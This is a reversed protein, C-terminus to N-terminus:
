KQVYWVVGNVTLQLSKQACFEDVARVVGPWHGIYDDGFMYGGEKLLPWYKNLDTIVADYEHSADIYIIDAKANYYTLVDAGQVSSIPFPLITDHHGLKKVNKTFTYFVNPYGNNIILQREHGNYGHTWFEPAGLWTDVAIIKTNINNNKCINAMTVTSLGKWTGVEIIILRNNELRNKLDNLFSEFTSPFQGCMWGQLDVQHNEADLTEYANKELISIFTDM